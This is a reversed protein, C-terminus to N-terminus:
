SAAALRTQADLQAVFEPEPAPRAFWFGQAQDCGLRRLERLQRVTEVGEAVVTHGLAHGLSVVAAVIASDEAETGLGDVFSRDVKVTDVPFRKLYGLSSYGTGFDDISLQVGIAKLAKITDISADGMLTSETIELCLRDPQTKADHLARDVIEVIDPQALQRASLNVSLAFDPHLSHASEWRSVARCAERLVHIGLPVILGTEEALGIFENPMIIGQDPHVWRVLAEAGVCRGATLEVFPQFHAIFEHRELARHLANEIDLRAQASSRMEEDYLEWRGKGSEKARYMASDAERVLADPKAGAGAIAIGISCSLHREEGAFLIPEEVGSLLRRAVDIVENRANGAPLGDCLITFEDGGFRAITDGRRLRGSLREALKVLLADGADHGLSDNVVKFRDLDMFLVGVSTGQREARALALTLFENFLVRNPLGTLPDHHAQHSLRDEQARREIAIGALQAVTRIVGIEDETPSHPTPWTVLVLGANTNDSAM